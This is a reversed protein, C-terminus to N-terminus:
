LVGSIVLYEHKLFDRYRELEAAKSLKKVKNNSDSLYTKEVNKLSRVVGLNVELFM